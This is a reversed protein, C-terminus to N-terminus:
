QSNSHRNDHSVIYDIVETPKMKKEKFQCHSKAYNGTKFNVKITSEHYLTIKPQHYDFCWDSLHTTIIVSQHLFRYQLNYDKCKEIISQRLAEEQAKRHIESLTKKTLTRKHLTDTKCIKCFHLFEQKPNPASDTAFHIQTKHGCYLCQCEYCVM